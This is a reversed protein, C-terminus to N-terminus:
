LRGQRVRDRLKCWLPESNVWSLTRDKIIGGSIQVDKGKYRREIVHYNSLLLSIYEKVRLLNEKLERNKAASILTGCQKDIFTLRERTYEIINAGFASFKFLESESASDPLNDDRRYKEKISKIAYYTIAFDSRADEERTTILSDFFRTRAYKTKIHGVDFDGYVGGRKNYELCSWLLDQSAFNPFAAVREKDFFTICGGPVVERLFFWKTERSFNALNYEFRNIGSELLSIMLNVQELLNSLSRTEKLHKLNLLPLIESGIGIIEIRQPVGHLYLGDEVADWRFRNKVVDQVTINEFIKNLAEIVEFLDVVQSPSDITYYSAVIRAKPNERFYNRKKCFFNEILEIRYGRRGVFSMVFPFIDDDLKNILVDDKNRSCGAYYDAIIQSINQTARVGGVKGSSADVFFRRFDKDRLDLSSILSLQSKKDWYTVQFQDSLNQKDIEKNIKDVEARYGSEISSDVSDDVVVFLIRHQINCIHCSSAKQSAVFSSIQPLLVPVRRYAHILAIDTVKGLFNSINMSTLSQEIPLQTSTELLSM